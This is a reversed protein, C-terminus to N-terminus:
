LTGTATHEPPSLNLQSRAGGRRAGSSGFPNGLPASRPQSSTNAPADFPNGALHKKGKNFPNDKSFVQNPVFHTSANAYHSNPTYHLHHHMHPDDQKLIHSERQTHTPTNTHICIHPRTNSVKKAALFPNKSAGIIKGFPNLSKEQGPLDGGTTSIVASSTRVFSEKESWLLEHYM